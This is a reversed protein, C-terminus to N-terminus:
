LLSVVATKSPSGHQRGCGEKDGHVEADMTDRRHLLGSHSGGLCAPCLSLFGSTCCALPITPSPQRRPCHALRRHSDTDTGRCVCSVTGPVPLSVAQAAYVQWATTSHRREYEKHAHNLQTAGAPGRAGDSWQARRLLLPNQRNFVQGSVSEGGCNGKVAM